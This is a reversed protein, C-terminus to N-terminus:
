GVKNLDHNERNLKESRRRGEQQQEGESPQQPQVPVYRLSRDAAHQQHSYSERDLNLRLPLSRENAQLPVNNLGEGRRGAAEGVERQVNVNM